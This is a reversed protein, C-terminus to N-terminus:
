LVYDAEAVIYVHLEHFIKLCNGSIRINLLNLQIYAYSADMLDAEDQNFNNSPHIKWNKEPHLEKSM